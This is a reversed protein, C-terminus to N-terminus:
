RIGGSLELQGLILEKLELVFEACHAELPRELDTVTECQM